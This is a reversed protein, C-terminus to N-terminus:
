GRAVVVVPMGLFVGRLMEVAEAPVRVCGHSVAQGISGPENTGHIGIQGDGVGFETITESRASLGVAFAGYAGGPDGTEVLDTVWWNGIPTPNEASGVGAPFTTTAGDIMITIERAATDVLIQNRAPDVAHVDVTAAPIWGTRAPPRGPAEIRVWGRVGGYELVRAVTPTGYMTKGPLTFVPETAAGPEPRVDISADPDTTVAYRWLPTTSTTESPAPGTATTTTSTGGCGALLLLAAVGVVMALRRM